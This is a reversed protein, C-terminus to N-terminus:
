GAAASLLEAARRFQGALLQRSEMLRLRRHRSAAFDNLLNGLRAPVTMGRRCLRMVDPPVQGDEFPAGGREIAATMLQCFLKM